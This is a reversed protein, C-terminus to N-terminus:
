DDEDESTRHFVLDEMTGLTVDLIGYITDLLAITSGNQLGDEVDDRLRAWEGTWELSWAVLGGQLSGKAIRTEIHGFTALIDHRRAALDEENEVSSDTTTDPTSPPAKVTTAPEEPIPLYNNVSSISDPGATPMAPPATALTVMLSVPIPNLYM